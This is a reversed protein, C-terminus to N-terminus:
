PASAFGLGLETLRADIRGLDWIAIDGNDRAIALRAGMPQWALWYVTGERDPLSYRLQGTAFDHIDVGRMSPSTVALWRGTHNLVIQRAATSSGMVGFSRRSEGSAADFVAVRSGKVLVAVFRGDPTFLRPQVSDASLGAVLELQPTEGLPDQLVTLQEWVGATTIGLGYAIRRGDPAATLGDGSFISRSSIWRVAGHEGDLVPRTPGIQWVGLSQGSDSLRVLLLGHRPDPVFQLGWTRAGIANTLQLLQRGSEADWLQVRSTEGDGTALLRGDPSFCVAQGVGPLLTDGEWIRQGSGSDWLAVTRDKAISVLRTGDPSFALGPVSARHGALTLCEGAGLIPHLDVGTHHLTLLFEGGPAFTAAIPMAPAAFMAVTEHRQQDRILFRYQQPRPVVVLATGPLFSGSEGSSGLGSFEDVVSFAATEFIRTGQAAQSLLYRGNESFAISAGALFGPPLRRLLQGRPLDWIEIQPEPNAPDANAILALKQGDRTVAVGPRWSGESRQISHTTRWSGAEILQIRRIPPGDAVLVSASNGFLLCQLAGPMPRSGTPQWKGLLSLAFETVRTGTSEGGEGSGHIALLRDGAGGFALDRVPHGLPWRGVESGAPLQLLQLGGNADRLALLRGDSSLQMGVFRNTAPSSAIPRPRFGVFDGMSAVAELRLAAIQKAPTDLDRAQRLLAFAEERYGVQRAIRTARAQGLLSAYLSATANRASAQALVANTEALRESAEAKTRQFTENTRARRAEVMQWLSVTLGLFLAALVLGAASFAARNRRWAKRFRYATSAPRAMVPENDLHRQLDAALGNATEYRRSRDKELCKMVIWDLDGRLEHILQPVGASRRKAANDGDAPQLTAFRTSPRVPEKERITRCMADLGSSLLDRPDFPLSGVLLEYLLVGLSYIDSRTDIDLGSIEAQEPSMYAPTGLLQNLQTYVTADTLRDETAKAIGFDIVKPVPVGDHLTVLINSPKLDRHIIGKQHAHQVGRCVTIFLEIRERTGLHIQDCYDTIRVGRVLEMVFYPRGWDTAGAEFVRAINPHDMMALAQREGEFRAIVARTDMGPKILKLAVQRRLPETQEAVYVVGCGGEGLQERLKYSGITRGIANGTLDVVAAPDVAAPKLPEGELGKAAGETRIPPLFAAPEALADDSTRPAGVEIMCSWCASGPSDPALDVGCRRCVREVGPPSKNGM